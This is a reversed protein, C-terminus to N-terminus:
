TRKRLLHDVRDDVIDGRKALDVEYWDRATMADENHGDDDKHQIALRRKRSRWVLFGVPAGAAVLPVLAVLAPFFALIGVCIAIVSVIAVFIPM